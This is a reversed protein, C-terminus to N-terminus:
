LLDARDQEELSQVVDKVQQTQGKRCVLVIGNRVVVILDQVGVLAVPLDSLVFNHKSDAAILSNAGQTELEAGFLEAVVDWSGVDSWSFGAPVM